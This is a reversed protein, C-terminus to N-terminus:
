ESDVIIALRTNEPCQVTTQGHAELSGTRQTESRGKGEALETGQAQLTVQRATRIEDRQHIGTLDEVPAGDQRESSKSLFFSFFVIGSLEIVGGARRGVREQEAPDRM